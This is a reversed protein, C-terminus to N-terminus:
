SQPHLKKVVDILDGITKMSYISKTEIEINFEREIRDTIDVADMSDMDYDSELDAERNSIDIEENLIDDLLTKLRTEIEM